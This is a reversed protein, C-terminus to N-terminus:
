KSENKKNNTKLEKWEEFSLANHFSVPVDTCNDSHYFFVGLQKYCRIIEDLAYYKTICDFNLILGNSKFSILWEVRYDLWEKLLEFEKDFDIM